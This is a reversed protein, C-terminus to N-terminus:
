DRVRLRKSTIEQGEDRTTCRKRRRRRIARAKQIDRRIERKIQREGDIELEFNRASTKVSWIKSGKETLPNPTRRRAFHM